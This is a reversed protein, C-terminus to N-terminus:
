AGSVNEAPYVLAGLREVDVDEGPAPLGVLHREEHRDWAQPEIVVVDINRAQVRFVLQLM